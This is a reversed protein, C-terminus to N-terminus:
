MKDIDIHICFKIVINKVTRSIPGNENKKKKKESNPAYPVKVSM